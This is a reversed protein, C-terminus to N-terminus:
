LRKKVVRYLTENNIVPRFSNSKKSGRKPTASSTDTGFVVDFHTFSFRMIRVKVRM